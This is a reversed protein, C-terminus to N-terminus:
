TLDLQRLPKPPRARYRPSPPACWQIGGLEPSYNVLSLIMRQGVQVARRRVNLGRCLGGVAFHRHLGLRFAPRVGALSAM